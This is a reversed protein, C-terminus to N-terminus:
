DALAAAEQSALRLDLAESFAVAQEMPYHYVSIHRIRGSPEHALVTAGCVVGGDFEGEWELYTRDESRVEHLFSIRHYMQRTAQFFTRIGAVGVIPKLAVLADLIPEPVFAIAFADLTKRSIIEMWERGPEARAPTM